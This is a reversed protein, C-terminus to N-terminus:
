NEPVWVRCYCFKVSSPCLCPNAPDMCFEGEKVYTWGAQVQPVFTTMLVLVNVILIFSLIFFVFFKSKKTM